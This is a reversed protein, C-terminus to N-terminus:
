CLIGPVPTLSNWTKFDQEDASAMQAHLHCSMPWNDRDATQDWEIQKGECRKILTDQVKDLALLM